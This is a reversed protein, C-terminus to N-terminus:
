RSMLIVPLLAAFFVLVLALIVIGVIMRNQKRTMDADAFQLLNNCQMCRRTRIYQWGRMRWMSEGPVYYTQGGLRGWEFETGGCVPCKSQMYPDLFDNKQKYM